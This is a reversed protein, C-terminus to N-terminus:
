MIKKGSSYCKNRKNLFSKNRKKRKHTERAIINTGGMHKLSM